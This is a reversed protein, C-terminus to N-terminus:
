GLGGYFGPWFHGRQPGMDKANYMAMVQDRWKPRLAEVMGEVGRLRREVADAFGVMQARNV